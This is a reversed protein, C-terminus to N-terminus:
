YGFDLGSVNERAEVAEALATIGHGAADRAWAWLGAEQLQQCAEVFDDAEAWGLTQWRELRGLWEQLIYITEQTSLVWDDIVQRRDV